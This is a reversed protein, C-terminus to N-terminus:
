ANGFDNLYRCIDTIVCTYSTWPGIGRNTRQLKTNPAFLEIGTKRLKYNLESSLELLMRDLKPIEKEKPRHGGVFEKVVVVDGHRGTVVMKRIREVRFMVNGRIGISAARGDILDAVRDTTRILSQIKSPPQDRFWQVVYNGWHYVLSDVGRAVFTDEHIFKYANNGNFTRIDFHDFRSM